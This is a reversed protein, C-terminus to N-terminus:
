INNKKTVDLLGNAEQHESILHMSEDTYQYFLEKILGLGKGHFFSKHYFNNFSENNSFRIKNTLVRFIQVANKNGILGMLLEYEDISMHHVGVISNDFENKISQFTQEFPGITPIEGFTVILLHIENIGSLSEHNIQKLKTICKYLQKLPEHIMREMDIDISDKDVYNKSESVISDLKLRTGKVEVALLKDGLRLLVDPSRDGKNFTFEKILHYPLSSNRQAKETIMEVYKEFCRGMFSFIQTDKSSYIQRIKFYLQNIFSEALVNLNFCLYNGEEVEILPYELFQTFNWQDNLSALAWKKRDDFSLSIEKLIKAAANQFPTSSFYNITITKATKSKTDEVNAFAAWLSTLVHLYERITYEYKEFFHTNIDRFEKEDFIENQCAIDTYLIISRSLSHVPSQNHNFFLNKFIDYFIKEDVQKEYHDLIAMSLIMIDYFAEEEQYFTDLTETNGYLILWKWLLMLGQQSCIIMGNENEIYAEDKQILYMNFRRVNQLDNLEQSCLKSLVSVIGGLPLSQIKSKIQEKTLVYGHLSKFTQHVDIILNSRNMRKLGKKKM